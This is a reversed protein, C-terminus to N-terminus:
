EELRDPVTFRLRELTEEDMREAGAMEDRPQPLRTILEDLKAHLAATDHNNTHQILFVMIFTACTTGTNIYIQYSDSFGFVLGGIFWGAVIGIALASAWATGALRSIAQAARHFRSAM